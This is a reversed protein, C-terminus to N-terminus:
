RPLLNHLWSQKQSKPSRQQQPNNSAGKARVPQALMAALSSAVSSLSSSRVHKPKPASDGEIVPGRSLSARSLEHQALPGVRGKKLPPTVGAERKVSLPHKGLTKPSSSGPSPARPSVRSAVPIPPKSERDAVGGSSTQDVLATVFSNFEQSLTEELSTPQPSAGLVLGRQMGHKYAELVVSVPVHSDVAAEDSQDTGESLLKVLNSPEKASSETSKKIGVMVRRPVADKRRSSSRPEGSIPTTESSSLSHHSEQSPPSPKQQAAATVFSAASDTDNGAIKEEKSGEEQSAEM